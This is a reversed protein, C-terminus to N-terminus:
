ASVHWCPGGYGRAPNTRFVFQSLDDLIAEENSGTDAVNRM